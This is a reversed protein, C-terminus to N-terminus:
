FAAECSTIPQDNSDRQARDYGTGCAVIDGWGDRALVTDNGQGADLRDIGTGGNLTDAGGGAGITDHGSGGSLNDSFQWGYVHDDGDGGLLNPTQPGPAGGATGKVDVVDNGAGGALTATVPVGLDAVLRDSRDGTDVYVSRVLTTPCQVQNANYNVCGAPQGVLPDVNNREWVLIYGPRSYVEIDNAEGPAARVTLVQGGSGTRSATSAEAGAPVSAAVAAVTALGLFSKKLTSISM